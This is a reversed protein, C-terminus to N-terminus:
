LQMIGAGPSRTSEELTQLRRCECDYVGSVIM